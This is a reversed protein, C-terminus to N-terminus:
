GIMYNIGVEGLFPGPCSVNFDISGALATATVSWDDIDDAENEETGVLNAIIKSAPTVSAAIVNVTTMGGRSYPLTLVAQAISAGGGGGTKADVANIATTLRALAAAVSDKLSAM